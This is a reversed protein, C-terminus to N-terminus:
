MLSVEDKYRGQLTAVLVNQEYEAKNSKEVEKAIAKWPMKNGSHLIILQDENKTFNLWRKSTKKSQDFTVKRTYPRRIAPTKKYAEKATRKNTCPKLPKFTQTSTSESKSVSNLM